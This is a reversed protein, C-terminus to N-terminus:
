ALDSDGARLTVEKGGGPSGADALGLESFRAPDNTRAEEYRLEILGTVLDRVLDTKVPFGVEAVAFGSGRKEITMPDNGQRIVLTTLGNAKDLLGPVVLEGRRDSAVTPTGARLALATAGVSLAAIVALIGLQRTNM